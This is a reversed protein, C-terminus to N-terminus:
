YNSDDDDIDDEENIRKKYEYHNILLILLFIGLPTFIFKILFIFVSYALFYVIGLAIAGIPVIIPILVIWIPKTKM